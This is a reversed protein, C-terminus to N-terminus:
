TQETEAIKKRKRLPNGVGQQQQVNSHGDYKQAKTSIEISTKQQTPETPPPPKKKTVNHPPVVSPYEDGSPNNEDYGYKAGLRQEEESSTENIGDIESQLYAFPSEGLQNVESTSFRAHSRNNLEGYSDFVEQEQADLDQIGSAIEHIDEVGDGNEMMSKNFHTIKNMTKKFEMEHTKDIVKQRGEMVTELQIKATKISNDYMHITKLLDMKKQYLPHSHKKKLIRDIECTARLTRARRSELDEIKNSLSNILVTASQNLEQSMQIKEDEMIKRKTEESKPLYGVLKKGLGVIPSERIDKPVYFSSTQRSTSSVTSSTRMGYPMNYDSWIDDHPSYDSVGDSFQVYSSSSSRPLQAGPNNYRVDREQYNNSFQDEKNDHVFRNPRDPGGAGGRGRRGSPSPAASKSGFHNNNSLGFPPNDEMIQQFDFEQVMVGYQPPRPKQTQVPPARSQSQKINGNNSIDDDDEDVSTVTPKRLERYM